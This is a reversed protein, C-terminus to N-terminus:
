KEGEDDRNRRRQDSAYQGRILLFLWGAGILVVIVTAAM